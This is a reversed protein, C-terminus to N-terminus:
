LINSDINELYNNILYYRHGIYNREITCTLNLPLADTTESDVLPNHPRTDRKKKKKQKKKYTSHPRADIPTEQFYFIELPQLEQFYFNKTFKDKYLM